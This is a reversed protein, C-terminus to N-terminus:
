NEETLTINQVKINIQFKWLVQIIQNKMSFDGFHNKSFIADLFGLPGHYLLIVTTTPQALQGSSYKHFVNALITRSQLIKHFQSTPFRFASYLLRRTAYTSYWDVGLTGFTVSRSWYRASTLQVLRMVLGTPGKSAMLVVKYSRQPEGLVERMIHISAKVIHMAMCPVIVKLLLDTYMYM